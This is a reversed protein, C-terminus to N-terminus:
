NLLCTICIFLKLGGLCRIVYAPVQYFKVDLLPKDVVVDIHHPSFQLEPASEPTAAIASLRYGGPSVQLVDFVWTINWVDCWCQYLSSPLCLIISLSSRLPGAAFPQGSNRNELFVWVM